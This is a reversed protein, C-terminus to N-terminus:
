DRPSPSTYLLCGETWEGQQFELLENGIGERLSYLYPKPDRCLDVCHSEVTTLWTAIQLSKWPTIGKEFLRDTIQSLSNRIEIVGGNIESSFALKSIAKEIGLHILLEFDKPEMM